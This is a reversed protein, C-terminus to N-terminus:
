YQIIFKKIADNTDGIQLMYLGNPFHKVDISGDIAKTHLVQQGQYNYISINTSKHEMGEIFLVGKTVPNPYLKVNKIFSTSKITRTNGINVTYDEVEGYAFTECSTPPTNYKMSVRMRTTGELATSPVNFNYSQNADSRTSESVIQESNEFIGNQDFDIWVGWYETYTNGTYDLSLVISNQGYAVNGTMHTFDGYGNNAGTANDIGGIGVYDIYEDRVNEGKSDCYTIIIDTTTITIANSTPSSNGAADKAIVSFVYITNPTLGTLTTTTTAVENILIGDQYVEYGTVGINDTSASWSLSVTSGTINSAVINTPVTPAQNDQIKPIIKLNDIAMDSRFGNGTTGRFQLKIVSTAYPSLDINEKNWENGQTGSKSWISSYSAGGNTSVLVELAGMDSGNMHYYFELSAGSLRTLDICPSNLIAIKGPYGTGNRSAETFVYFTGEQASEPGTGNSPTNGSDRIWDIDDEDSDSWIGLGSEFGETYPFTNIGTCAPVVTTTFAVSDSYPSITGGACKSRVQAEYAVEAILDTLTITNTTVSKVTWDTSGVSRYRIDYEEGESGTWNLVATTSQISSATLGEPAATLPHLQVDKIITQYDAITVGTVTKTEYCEAQYTITYTGAKIPRYYDGEPLETPTWTEYSDKGVVTVKADIPQNTIADTVVGRIGYNVQQLFAILADRNYNWFSILQNAPPAKANSLEITVERGKHFYIQYDQRGGKVEYWEYGNTIGNNLADFYGDPSNQQCFDRYEESVHVYYDKDPHAAAYTDWPYNVLEIGGHFNASLVFHKSVAFEMFRQTEIQHTNGDPNAGNDPDPYNRNLDVNNANGRTANAISTNDPSNRYTGDPNALPNIWVENNDLLEKIEAHRSHNTNNYAQLLFDILNLMMPYGAIEDGHMSSTYMVRPEKENLEVNDSLKVFLLSKDGETTTGINEVKCLTPNNIAFDNMMRVYDTYTPYAVLPFTAAKMSLDSTMVRPGIINDKETTTFQINKQLFLAFQSRNAMVKVKKAVEDYHVISLGETLARIQFPDQVDLDFIVEGKLDLYKFAEEIQNEQAFLSSGLILNIWLFIIDKKKM